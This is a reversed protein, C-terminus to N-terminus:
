VEVKKATNQILIGIIVLIIGFITSIFIREDLFINVFALNLFPAIYVLNSITATTSSLQLAKLWLIFAFGMEFMGIYAAALWAEKGVPFSPDRFLGIILLYLGSFLFIIFLSVVEDTKNKMNFIWYFAWLVATFLALLVGKISSGESLLNGDQFSLAAVGAFSIFLAVFHKPSISQRLMPISILVLVIPWTMNLPQAVQAPLLDYAKFL